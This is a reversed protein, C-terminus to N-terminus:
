IFNAEASASRKCMSFFFQLPAATDSVSVGTM